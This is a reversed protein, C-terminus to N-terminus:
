SSFPTNALNAGEAILKTYRTVDPIDESLTNLSAVFDRLEKTIRIPGFTKYYRWLAMEMQNIDIITYGGLIEEDKHFIQEQELEAIQREMKKIQDKLETIEQEYYENNGLAKSYADELPQLAVSGKGDLVGCVACAYAYGIEDENTTPAIGLINWFAM